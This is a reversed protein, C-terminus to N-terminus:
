RGRPVEPGGPTKLILRGSNGMATFTYTHGSRADLIMQWPNPWKPNPTTRLSLVHRGPPLFGEYTHGYGINAIAVGDASLQIWVYNGLGPDRWVILRGAGEGPKVFASGVVPRRRPQRDAAIAQSPIYGGLFLCTAMLAFLGRSRDRYTKM